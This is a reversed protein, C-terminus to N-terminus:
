GAGTFGAPVLRVSSVDVPAAKSWARRENAFGVGPASGAVKWKAALGSHVIHEVMRILTSPTIMEHLIQERLHAPVIIGSTDTQATFFTRGSEPARAIDTYFGKRAFAIKLLPVNLHVKIDVFGFLVDAVDEAPLPFISIPALESVTDHRDRARSVSTQGSLIMNGSELWGLKDHAKQSRQRLMGPNGGFHRFDVAEVFVCPAPQMTAYGTAKARRILEPLDNLYTRYALPLHLRGTNLRHIAALQRQVQPSDKTLVQSKKVEIPMPFRQGEDTTFIATVDGVRLCNTLHNHIALVGYRERVHHLARMEVQFGEESAFHGVRPGEALVAIATRDYDLARWVIGDAIVRISHQLARYAATAHEVGARLAQQQQMEERPFPRMDKLRKIEENVEKLKPPIVGSFADQRGGFDIVLEYQLSNLDDATQARQLQDIWAVFQPQAAQYEPDNFIREEAELWKVSPVPNRVVKM